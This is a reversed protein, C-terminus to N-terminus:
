TTPEKCLSPLNAPHHGPSSNWVGTEILNRERKQSFCGSKSLVASQSKYVWIWGLETDGNTVLRIPYLGEVIVFQFLELIPIGMGRHVYRTQCERFFRSRNNIHAKM